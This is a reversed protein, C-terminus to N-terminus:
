WTSRRVGPCINPHVFSDLLDRHFEVKTRSANLLDLGPAVIVMATFIVGVLKRFLTPPEPM